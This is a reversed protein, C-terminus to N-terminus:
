GLIQRSPSLFGRYVDTLIALTKASIQVRFRRFVFFGAVNSEGLHHDLDCLFAFCFFIENKSYEVPTCRELRTQLFVIILHQVKQVSFLIDPSPPFEVTIGIQELSLFGCNQCMGLARQLM